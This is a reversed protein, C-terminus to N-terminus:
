LDDAAIIIPEFDCLCGGHDGPFYFADDPWGSSNALVADDFNVFQVGDLDRHPEFPRSRSAPGYVWAFGEVGVGNSTLAGTIAEGTAIMGVPAGDPYVAVWADTGNTVLGTAGGARAMAQRVLGTPVKMTPDFEGFEPAGPTPDFLRQNALADLSSRMWAWATDIDGAQRLQLAARESTSFGAALQQAVDIAEAQARGAWTRFQTELEDWADDLVNDGGISATLARGLTSAVMHPAVGTLSVTLGQVGKSKSRLRNGAKELARTMAADAAVTLRTRLERDIGLLRAGPNPATRGGAAVVPALVPAAPALAPTAMTLAQVIQSVALRTAAAANDGSGDVPQPNGAADVPIEAPQDIPIEAGGLLKLLALTLDATLIGKTLGTRRLLEDPDPADDDDFGKAARYASDSITLKQHAEGANEGPDPQTILKSADYWVFVKEAYEKLAPVSQLQPTYFGYTIGDVLLDARPEMYDDFTDQDIQGANAFTTSMHGMVVEVPLDIGRALRGVLKEIKDDVSQDSPRSALVHRFEKLAEAPGRILTPQVASPSAPDAIPGQMTKTLEALFPDEEPDGDDSDENATQSAPGFSIETPVLLFGNNRKSNTEGIIALTMTHIAELVTIMGALACDPQDAWRPHRQWVRICTDEATLEYPSQDNASSKVFYKGDRHEIESISHIEWTEPIEETATVGKMGIDVNAKRAARGVIFAEAAIELNQALQKLIESQGGRDSKLRALEAVMLTAIAPPIGSAEHTVPIPPKEPDPNAVAPFLRLKAMGSGVYRVSHKVEPIADFFEWLDDQWELRPLKVTAKGDTRLPRAAAVLAKPENNRRAM